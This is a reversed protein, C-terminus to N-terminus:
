SPAMGSLRRHMSVTKRSDQAGGENRRRDHQQKRASGPGLANREHDAVARTRGNCREAIGADSLRILNRRLPKGSMWLNSPFVHKANSLRV